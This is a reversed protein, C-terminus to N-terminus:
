IGLVELYWKRLQQYRGVYAILLDQLSMATPAANGIRCIQLRHRLIKFCETTKGLRPTLGKIFAHAFQDESSSLSRFLFAMFCLLGSSLYFFFFAQLFQSFILLINPCSLSGLELQLVLPVVLDLLPGQRMTSVTYGPLISLHIRRWLTRQLVFSMNYREYAVM